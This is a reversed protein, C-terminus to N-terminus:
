SRQNTQQSRDEWLSVARRLSERKTWAQERYLKIVTQPADALRLRVLLTPREENYWRHRRRERRKGSLQTM